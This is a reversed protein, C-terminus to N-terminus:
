PELFMNFNRKKKNFEVSLKFKVSYFKDYSAIMHNATQGM